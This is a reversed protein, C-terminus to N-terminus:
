GATTSVRETNAKQAYPYRNTTTYADQVWLIRGNLIVPYPDDDFHLFPAAKKVRDRIDRVYIARSKPTVFGSILPNFDGFRLSLAARRLWSSLQM